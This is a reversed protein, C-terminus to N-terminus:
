MVNPMAKVTPRFKVEFGDSFRMVNYKGPRLQTLAVAKADAPWATPSSM